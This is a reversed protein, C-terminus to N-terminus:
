MNIYIAETELDKGPYPRMLWTKLPFIEDGVMYYPLPDYSCGDVSTPQPLNISGDEFREAIESRSLVGSDNNSRYNGIDILTFCYNADCVVLLIISFFSKYNHFLTGSDAPCQIRIHKGDIVGIVRPLNWTQKFGNAISLWEEPSSPPTLYGPSFFQISQM